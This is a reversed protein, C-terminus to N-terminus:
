GPASGQSPSGTRPCPPCRLTRPRYKLLLNANRGATQVLLRILTTDSKYNQDIIKYGWMGNMTQCTELPLKSIDQGSLGATNAGPVDREFMQFDEGRHPTSHHNNGILCAPNIKHINAYMKDYRWDFGPNEDQDWEGDLWIAEAGYDRVLEALQANMFADYTDWSGHSKRGTGRGTRGIPYYDERHWDLISYYIHFGLGQKRCEDRLEALIDRRFPSAKVINYDSQKTDWMSFSDHHRSTITLYGAGSAKIASVWAAADFRSPYFGAAAKAYEAHDINANTMYWEGQAFTSYLGWHLFIGFGKDRFAERAQLNEKTPKYDQQASAHPSSALLGLAIGAAYLTTRVSNM